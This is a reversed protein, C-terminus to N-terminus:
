LLACSCDAELAVALLGGQVAAPPQTLTEYLLSDDPLKDSAALVNRVIDPLPTIKGVKVNNPQSAYACSLSSPRLLLCSASTAVTQNYNLSIAPLLLAALLVFNYGLHCPRRHQKMRATYLKNHQLLRCCRAVGTQLGTPAAHSVLERELKQQLEGVKDSPM